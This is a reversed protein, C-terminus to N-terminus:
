IPAIVGALLPVLVALDIAPDSSASGSPEASINVGRGVARFPRGRFGSSELLRRGDIVATRGQAAAELLGSLERFEDARTAILCADAGRIASDLDPAIAMGKEVYQALAAPSVLPDYATVRARERLLLDVIKLGPSERLDDTDAKFALGLVTVNKDVLGGLADMAMSVVRQPQHENIEMVAELLPTEEGTSSAFSALARIDKPLCSGGFGIGSRLYSLIEPLVVKNDIVPSLRRDRHLIALVEEVDVGPIAEALRALQNSFSILTGLLANSACKALEAVAPTTRIVYPDLGDYLEAVRDTGWSEHCGIV